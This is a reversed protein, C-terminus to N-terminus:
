VALLAPTAAGVPRSASAPRARSRTATWEWAAATAPTVAATATVPPPKTAKWCWRGGAASDPGTAPGPAGTEGSPM